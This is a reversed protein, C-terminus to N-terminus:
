KMILPLYVRQEVSGAVTVVEILGQGDRRLNVMHFHSLTPMGIYEGSLRGISWGAAWGEDGFPLSEGDEVLQPNTPNTLDFILYNGWYTGLYLFRGSIIIDTIHHRGTNSSFINSYTGIFVPNAPDFVDVIHFLPFQSNNREGPLIYAYGNRVWMRGAELSSTLTLRSDYLQGTITPSFPDSVDVVVFNEDKVIYAYDGQAFVKSYKNGLDLEGQLTPTLPESIDFVRLYRRYDYNTVSATTLAYLHDEFLSLTSGKYVSPIDGTKTPSAPVSLDLISVAAFTPVYLAEGRGFYRMNENWEGDWYTGLREPNAPDQIDFINITGGYTQSASALSGDDSVWAYRGEAATAVGGALTPTMPNTVDFVRLGYNYDNVYLKDGDLTLQRFRSPRPHDYRHVLQPSDPNSIDFTLLSTYDEPYNLNLSDLTSDYSDDTVYLYNGNSVASYLDVWGENGGGSLTFTYVGRQIFNTPDSADVLILKAPQPQDYNNPRWETTMIALDGSVGILRPVTTTTVGTEGLYTGMVTAEAPGSIDVVSFGASWRHTYPLPNTPSIVGNASALAVYARDGSLYIGMAGYLDGITLSLVETANLPDAMDLVHFAPEQRITVYGYGDKFEIAEMRLNDPAEWVRTLSEDPYWALDSPDSIDIASMGRNNRYLYLYQDYLGLSFNFDGYASDIVQPYAPNSIDIVQIEGEGAPMYAYDGRIKVFGSGPVGFGTWISGTISGPDDDGRPLMFRGLTPDIALTGPLVHIDPWGAIDSLDQYIPVLPYDLGRAAAFEWSCVNVGNEFVTMGDPSGYLSSVEGPTIPSGDPKLLARDVDQGELYYAFRGYFIRDECADGQGDGDADEQHANFILTCNDVTDDIGDGDSDTETKSIARGSEVLLKGQLSFGFVIVLSFGLGFILSLISRNTRM